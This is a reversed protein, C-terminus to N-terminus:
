LKKRCGTVEAVVLLIAVPEESRTHSFSASVPSQRPVRRQCFSVEESTPWWWLRALLEVLTNFVISILVFLLSILRPLIQNDRFLVKCSAPGSVKM